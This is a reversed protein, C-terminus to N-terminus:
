TKPASRSTASCRRATTASTESAASSTAAPRPRVAHVDSRGPRRLVGAHAGAGAIFALRRTGAPSRSAPAPPDRARLPGLLRPVDRRHRPARLRRRVCRSPSTDDGRATPALAVAGAPDVADVPGAPARTSRLSLALFRVHHRGPDAAPLGIGARRLVWTTTLGCLVFSGLFLFNYAGLQNAGLRHLLSAQIAPGIVHDSLTTAAKAPYFFGANWFELYGDLGRSLCKEGWEMFYLVLVPDGLDSPLRTGAYDLRFHLLWWALACFLVLVGGGIALRNIWARAM